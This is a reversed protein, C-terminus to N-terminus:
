YCIAKVYKYKKSFEKLLDWSNDPSFDNIFIVDYKDVSKLQSLSKDLENMLSDLMKASKYVPIIVSLKM